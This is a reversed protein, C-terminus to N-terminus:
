LNIQSLLHSTFVLSLSLSSHILEALSLQHPRILNIGALFVTVEDSDTINPDPIFISGKKWTAMQLVSMNNRDIQKAAQRGVLDPVGDM